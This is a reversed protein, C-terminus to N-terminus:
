FHPDPDSVRTYECDCPKSFSYQVYEKVGQLRLMVVQLRLNLGTLFGEAGHDGQALGHELLIVRRGFLYRVSGVRTRLKYSTCM